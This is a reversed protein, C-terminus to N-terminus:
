SKFWKLVRNWFNIELLLVPSLLISQLLGYVCKRSKEDRYPFWEVKIYDNLLMFSGSFNTPSVNNWKKGTSTRIETQCNAALVITSANEFLWKSIPRDRLWLIAYTSRLKTSTNTNTYLFNTIWHGNATPSFYMYELPLATMPCREHPLSM